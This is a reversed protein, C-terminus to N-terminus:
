RTVELLDLPEAIGRLRAQGADVTTLGEAALAPALDATILLRSAPAHGAIRAALNVTHGYVDADRVVVPGSAVGAHAPPLGAADISAMLALVARVADVATGFRLMVGDGLLKVVRGRHKHAATMALDQLKAALAAAQQDGATQTFQTYGALDVFAIAPEEPDRQVLRGADAARAEIYAVIRRFVEDESHRALLWPLLDSMVAILELSPRNADEVSMGRRMRQPPSGGHEDFLDLTAEQMRRIGEGAIRAARIVADPEPDVLTWTEVFARVIAEEDKPVVSDDGPQALGFAQYVSAVLPGRDGLSATFSGFTQSAPGPAPWTRSVEDVQLLGADIAWQLDDSGIGGQRLAWTLRVSRVDDAPHRGDPDRTITGSAVLEDVFEPAVGAELALEERTLLRRAVPPESM